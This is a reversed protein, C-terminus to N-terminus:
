SLDRCLDICLLYHSRFAWGWATPAAQGPAIKNMLDREPPVANKRVNVLGLFSCFLPLFLPSRVRFDLRIRLGNPELVM